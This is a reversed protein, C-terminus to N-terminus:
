YGADNLVEDPGLTNDVAAKAKEEPEAYWKARYEWLQMAGMAVDQRDSNREAQKDEIISDDFDIKIETDPDLNQVGCSIGLRIIIRILKKLVNDLILEHKKLTRYMDSNESIVQTATQINGREFEYRSTGFGCRMSAINLDDTIAKSHQEARLSLDVSELLPKEDGGGYDEPLSYFVTDDPDFAPVGGRATLMEPRVFIRKRGMEFENSYSDYEIDLKKLIDIANAFLAVGMPSSEDQDANNVLNLRDIVFQPQDSGTELHPALTEFPQLKRWEDPQLQKGDQAGARVELVVNDIVYQRDPGTGNLHHHQLHLYNRRLYTKPFAFICETVNGNSWATPYINEATVYDIGISGSLVTGNEAIEMDYLYPVYAVTGLAAKREQFENGLVDFNNQQLVASVFEGTPQHSYTIAVRENLLLDAMDECLKKALGITKRRCRKYTGQGTYIRYQSFGRVNGNYWSKWDEIRRYFSSDITNIGNRYFYKFLNM